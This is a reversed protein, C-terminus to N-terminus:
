FSYSYGSAAIKTRRGTPIPRSNLVLDRERERQCVRVCWHMCARVCARGWESVGIRVCARARARVCVCVSVCRVWLVVGCHCMCQCIWVCMGCWLLVQCVPSRATPLLSKLPQTPWPPCSWFTLRRWLRTTSGAWSWCWTRGRPTSNIATCGSCTGCISPSSSSSPSSTTRTPPWAVSCRRKCPRPTSAKALTAPAQNPSLFAYNLCQRRYVVLVHGAHLLRLQSAVSWNVHRHSFKATISTHGVVKRLAAGSAVPRRVIREPLLPVAPLVFQFLVLGRLASTCFWCVLSNILARFVDCLCLLLSRLRTRYSEGPM